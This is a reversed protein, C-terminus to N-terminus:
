NREYQNEQMAIILDNRALVTDASVISGESLLAQMTMDYSMVLIRDLHRLREAETMRAPDIEGKWFARRLRVCDPFLRTNDIYDALYLLKEGLTMDKHGTTHWRVASIVDAHAFRPYNESIVAAATRAHLTKPANIDEKKLTIGLSVCLEQQLPIPMEKTIDHLLAAARLVLTDEPCYLAALQAVMDEVAVTHAYRKPSMSAELEERLTTLDREDFGVRSREQRNCIDTM